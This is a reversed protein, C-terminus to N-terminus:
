LENPACFKTSKEGEGQEREVGRGQTQANHVKARERSEEKKKTCQSKPWECESREAKPEPRKAMQM